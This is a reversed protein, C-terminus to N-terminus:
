FGKKASISEFICDKFEVINNTYSSSSYIIGGNKQAGSNEIKVNKFLIKNNPNESLKLVQMIAGNESHISNFNSNIITINGIRKSLTDTCSIAGNTFRSENFNGNEVFISSDKEYNFLSDIKKIYFFSFM